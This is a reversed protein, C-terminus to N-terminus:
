ERGTTSVTFTDAYSTFHSGHLFLRVRNAPAVTPACYIDRMVSANIRAKLTSVSTNVVVTVIM